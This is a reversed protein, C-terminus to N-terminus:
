VIVPVCKKKKMSREVKILLIIMIAIAATGLTITLWNSFLSELNTWIELRYLILWVILLVLGAVFIPKKFINKNQIMTKPIIKLPEKRDRRDLEGALYALGFFAFGAIFPYYFSLPVNFMAFHSLDPAALWIIALLVSGFLFGRDLLCSNLAPGYVRRWPTPQNDPEQLDPDAYEILGKPDEQYFYIKGPEINLQKNGEADLTGRKLIQIYFQLVSKGGVKSIRWKDM